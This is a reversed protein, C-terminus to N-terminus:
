NGSSHSGHNVEQKQNSPSKRGLIKQAVFASIGTTGTASGAIVVATAICVPCM